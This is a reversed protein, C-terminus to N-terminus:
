RKHEVTKFINIGCFPCFAPTNSGSPVIMTNDDSDSNKIYVLYDMDGLRCKDNICSFRNM